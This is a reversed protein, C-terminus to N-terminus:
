ENEENGKILDLIRMSLSLKEGEVNKINNSSKSILSISNKDSGFSDDKLINLCVYDLDKKRLMNNANELASIKDFEAKFGVRKINDIDKLNDLIDINKTLQLNWEDGILEKKLKGSNPYKVVYDSVASVMFLFPTKKIIQEINDTILDSKQLVGRKSQKVSEKLYKYMEESSQVDIKHIENPLNDIKHTHVICCNAGKLYLALALSNSMKGSSFNSIYRVDDIKEITGGGSLVVNRFNWFDDKLLTRATKYYIDKIDAMAGDGRNNCALMKEQTKVLEYGCVKLMKLSASTIPNYLMNTNASPALIKPKNSAILTQTLINDAIGNQLKNITNATAPAIVIVDGWNALGIHNHNGGSWDENDDALVKNQSITEFTLQSIFKKASNTMVVKVIAQSKIFYRILELTKYIAISGTVAVVIKKNELNPLMLDM